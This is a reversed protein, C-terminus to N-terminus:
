FKRQHGNCNENCQLKLYPWALQSLCIQIQAYRPKRGELYSGANSAEPALYPNHIQSGAISAIRAHTRINIKMEKKKFSL